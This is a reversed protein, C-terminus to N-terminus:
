PHEIIPGSGKFVNMLVEKLRGPTQYKMYRSISTKFNEAPLEKFKAFQELLSTVGNSYTLGLKYKDVRYGMIGNEPVLVPIGYGLAQLMVGSSGWFNQYPLVLHSASRFFSEICDPDSIYRNTELLRGKKELNKKLENVDLDYRENPDNLGCHIFCADQQVAMNLLLDYGRRKQATGFYLFVFRDKNAEKFNKLRDIWLREESNGGGVLGEAYSQFVDPLWHAHPHHAVFNEDIYLACDILKFRKILYEHFLCEDTRWTSRLNKVYRLRDLFNLKKYFHFPRLFIGITKGKLRKGKNFLQSNFLRIHHDAEPFVTLDPNYKEQLQMFEANTIGLGGRTYGSTDLLVVKDEQKLKEIYSSDTVNGKIDGAVFVAFGIEKLIDALVYVYIQRHGDFGPSFILANPM